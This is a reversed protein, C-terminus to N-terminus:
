AVATKVLARSIHERPYFIREHWRFWPTFQFEAAEFLLRIQNLDQALTEGFFHRFEEHSMKRPYIGFHDRCGWLALLSTQAMCCLIEGAELGFQDPSAVEGDKMWVTPGDYIFAHPLERPLDLASARPRAADCIIVEAIGFAAAPLCLSPDATVIIVVDAHEVAARAADTGSFETVDSGAARLIQALWNLKLVSSKVALNVSALQGLTHRLFAIGVAGTAGLVAIRADRPNVNRLHMARQVSDWIGIATLLNGDNLALFNEEKFDAARDHTGTLAGFGGYGVGIAQARELLTRNEAKIDGAFYPNGYAFPPFLSAAYIQLHRRGNTGVTHANVIPLGGFSTRLRDIAALTPTLGFRGRSGFKALSLIETTLGRKVLDYHGYDPHINFVAHVAGGSPPPLSGELISLDIDSPTRVRLHTTLDYKELFARLSPSPPPLQDLNLM